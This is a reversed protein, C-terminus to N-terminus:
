INYPTSTCHNNRNFAAFLRQIILLPRCVVSIEDNYTYNSFIAKATYLYTRTILDRWNGHANFKRIACNVAIKTWFSILFRNLKMMIIGICCHWHIRAHQMRTSYLNNALRIKGGNLLSSPYLPSTAPSTRHKCPSFKPKCMIIIIKFVVIISYCSIIIIIM